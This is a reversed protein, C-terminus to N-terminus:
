KEMYMSQLTRHSNKEQVDKEKKNSIGFAPNHAKFM